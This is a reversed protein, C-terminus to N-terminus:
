RMEATGKRKVTSFRFTKPRKERELVGSATYTAFPWIGQNLLLTSQLKLWEALAM